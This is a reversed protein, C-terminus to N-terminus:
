GASGSIKEYEGGSARHHISSPKWRLRVITGENASSNIELHAGLRAARARMIKIGYHPRGDDPEAQPMFGIGQDQVILVIEGGAEELQLFVAGAQSYRQANLLAERVVRLAQESEHRPLILPLVISSEYIVPPGTKSLEEALVALQEQLTYNVPFDDQLSAIARRIEREAQEEAREIQQLTALAKEIEGQQLQERLWRAMLQLFSLTQLLGDHMESAIRHREELTAVHEAQEYLRSNELAVEAAGALQTLVPLLEAPFADSRSSGVCLAGIVKGQSRLPAALHSARYEPRIIHCFGQCTNQGCAYAASCHLINEVFPSNAPSQDHWIMGDQGAAAHLRMVMGQKDLLCLSAVDSGCLAQAKETVSTLVEGITLHSNIERSVAALAELAHTRQQVRVELNEALQELEHRSSLLQSRMAEMALGLSQVELAGGSQITDALQGEGLRRAARELQALPAAISRRIVWWGSGLLALGVLLIILQFTRLSSQRGASLDEYARVVRDAQHLMSPAQLEIERVLQIRQDASGASLLRDVTGQFEWWRDSLDDLAIQLATDKPVALTIQEGTYDIFPEGTRLATLTQEFEATSEQLLAASEATPSNPFGNALRVMQQILMRQRGALNIIRSDQKQQTLNIYTVGVSILLLLLFLCFILGLREQVSSLRLFFNGKVRGQQNM